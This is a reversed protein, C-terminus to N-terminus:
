DHASRVADMYTWAADFSERGEFLENLASSIMAKRMDVWGPDAVEGTVKQAGGIWGLVGEHYVSLFRHWESVRAPFVRCSTNTVHLGANELYDTYM